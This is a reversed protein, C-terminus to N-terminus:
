FPDFIEGGLRWSYSLYFPFSLLDVFNPQFNKNFLETFIELCIKFPFADTVGLNEHRFDM